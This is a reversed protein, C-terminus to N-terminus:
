RRDVTLPKEPNYVAYLTGLKSNLGMIPSAVKISASDSTDLTIDEARLLAPNFHSDFAEGKYKQNTTSIIKGKADAVLLMEFNPEQVFQYLYQDVQEVNGSLLATRVSWAFPMMLTRLLYTTNDTIRQNARAVLAERDQASKEQADRIQSNKSNNLILLTILFAALLLLPIYVVPKRIMGLPSNERHPNKPPRGEEYDTPHLHSEM